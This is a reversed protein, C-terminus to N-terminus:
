RRDSSLRPTPAAPLVPLPLEATQDLSMDALQLPSTQLLEQLTHGACSARRAADVQAVIDSVGPVALARSVPKGSREQRVAEIIDIVALHAPDRALQLRDGSIKLVRARELATIIPALAVGTVGLDTALADLAYPPRGTATKHGVLFAITLALQEIEAASLYLQRLGFRLYSPNQIYFSLQAGSLLILWGFYTWTVVAVVAAFGAYVLTLRSSYEVFRTFTIGVAAWLVGAVVAGSLAPRFRVRTNPIFMYLFTFLTTVMLYPAVHLGVSILRKFLPLSSALQVPGAIFATHSLAIFGGLLLPGVVLLSLFEAVRRGISRPQPVRWVYNFSDEVKQITGILSWALFTIGVVGVVGRRLRGAFQLVERTMDDAGAGVPRFFEMVIPQLERGAHTGLQRLIIFTFALLPVMSLMTTFVLATARMNIQGGALDRIVAYPYRGIRAAKRVLGAHGSARSFVAADLQDWPWNSM